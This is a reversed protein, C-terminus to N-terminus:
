WRAAASTEVAELSRDALVADICTRSAGVYTWAFDIETAVCWAHDAPWWLNPSMHHPWDPQEVQMADYSTLAAALPGGFVHYARHQLQLKPTLANPVASGGFGEWIAFYCEDPTATAPGLHQLLSQIIPKTLTGVRAQVYPSGHCAFDGAEAPDRAQKKTLALQERWTSLQGNSDFPHYVRAYAPLHGPLFSSVNNAFTTLSAQLWETAELSRLHTLLPLM